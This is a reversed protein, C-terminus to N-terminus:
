PLARPLSKDSQPKVDPPRLYLPKVPRMPVLASPALALTRAHPQLDALAAEAKGGAQAIEEAIMAAASGVVVVPDSGVLAAADERAVLRPAGAEALAGTFMQVYAMDRRVDVAVALPRGARVVGLREAALHAMSALSTTGLVPKGTALALARAAAVGARVGTFSGPGITVAIQQLDPFALGAEEMVEAIMPMLREAHGATRVEYAEHLKWEDQAVRRRVAVSIAGLCTDFALISM